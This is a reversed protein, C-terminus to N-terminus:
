ARAYGEARGARADLLADFRGASGAVLSSQLSATPTTYRLPDNEFLVVAASNGAGHLVTQPGKLITVRDYAGPFAYATPPDMRNGCGGLVCQGDLAVVVRSGAMGRFVPDGDTGGKRIVRRTINRPVSVRTPLYRAAM